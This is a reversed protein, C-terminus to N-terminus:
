IILITAFPNKNIIDIYKKDLDFRNINKDKWWPLHFSLWLPIKYKKNIELLETLINEEGGEIDIKLLSINNMDIKNDDIIKNLTISKLIIYDDIKDNDVIKSMSENWNSKTYVNKGFKIDIDDINYIPKDIIMINTLNNVICNNKLGEVSYPDAEVVYVYKSKKAAYLCTTGIWGGLDIFIKNNDLYKDFVDFTDPEWTSYNEIFWNYTKESSYTNLSKKTFNIELSNKQFKIYDM